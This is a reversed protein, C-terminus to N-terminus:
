SADEKRHARAPVTLRVTSARKGDCVEVTFVVGAYKVEDGPEPIRDIQSMLFGAVTEHEEDEVAVGILDKLEDLDLSGDVRYVGASLKEYAAPEQEHEDVITGVVEGLADDLTVIGATGGYEDVVIAQHVRHAQANRVFQRVTMMKPVYHPPRAFDRAPRDLEGKAFSPLLDKAVLIGVATDLNENYVPMRSYDHERLVDLADRVTADDPIAIVDPRPVLIESLRADSFELIGEIMQREDEEIVGEAEGHSLLTKFEHETIFPAARITHFRTIRFLSDTVWLLGDRVPGLLRDMVTLPLSALRAFREGAGVAIIKPTVEGLLVVLTTVIIVALAYSAATSSLGLAVWSNKDIYLRLWETERSKEFLHEVRTGLVVAILVNVIMNGFLITTLLRGPDQMMSTVLRSTLTKEERMARLRLKRISFFATESGSFFASMSLLVAVAALIGPQLYENWAEGEAIETSGHFVISLLVLAAYLTLFIGISLPNVRPRSGTDDDL